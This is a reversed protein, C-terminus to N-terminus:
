NIKYKIGMFIGMSSLLVDWEGIGALPAKLFPEAQLHIRPAIQYQVGLSVNLIKFWENNEKVIYYSYDRSGSSSNVTYTYDEEFMMYSSLGISTYFSTRLQPRFRYNVNLPIDLIRCAGVMSDATYKGYTVEQDTAYKKMSWIGGTSISWRDMLQYEVLLSYNSGPASSSSSTNKISSFDPSVLARLFISHQSSPREKKKEEESNLQISDQKVETVSNQQSVSDASITTIKNSFDDPKNESQLVVKKEDMSDGEDNVIIMNSDKVEQGIATAVRVIGQHDMVEDVNNEIRSEQQQPNHNTVPNPQELNQQNVVNQEKSIIDKSKSESHLEPKPPEENKYTGVWVGSSFIILGVLTFTMWRKWISVKPQNLRANMVDWAASDFAPEYGEAANKFVSDLEQDTLKKM